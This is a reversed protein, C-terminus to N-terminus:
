RVQAKTEAMEALRKSVMDLDVAHNSIDKKIVSVDQQQLRLHKKLLNLETYLPNTVEEVLSRLRNENKFATFDDRAVTEESM